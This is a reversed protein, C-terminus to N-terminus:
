PCSTAAVRTLHEAGSYLSMAFSGGFNMIHGEDSLSPANQQPIIPQPNGPKSGDGAVYLFNQSGDPYLIAFGAGKGDSTGRVAYVDNITYGGYSNGGPFNFTAGVTGSTSFMTALVSQVGTGGDGTDAGNYVTVFGQSTGAVSVPSEGTAYPLGLPNGVETGSSNVLTMGPPGGSGVAIYTVAFVGGSFALDGDPETRNPLVLGSPDGTPVIITNGAPSGDTAFQAVKIPGYNPLWSAVFAGDLWQVHSQRGYADFGVAELQTRQAIALSSDLFTLYVASGAAAASAADYIVAIQGSPAVAVGNVVLSANTGTGNAASNFLPSSPGKSAGTALDFHQVDVREIYSAVGADVAMGGDTAPPGVYGSFVLFENTTRVGIGSTYGVNSTGTATRGFKTMATCTTSGGGGGTGGGGSGSTGGHGGGGGAHGGTGNGGTGTGSGGTGTGTGSGGTGTGSGGTGTGGTGNNGGQPIGMGADNVVFDNIAANYDKDVVPDACLHTTSTCVQAGAGMGMGPCDANTECMDRCQHDSSCVLPSTCMSNYNCTALEPAQCATGQAVSGTGADAGGSSTGGDGTATLVICRQGTPCDSSINCPKVCYGLACVLGPTSLKACDSNLACQPTMPKSSSGCGAVAVILALSAVSLGQGLTV